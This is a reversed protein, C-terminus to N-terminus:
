IKAMTTTKQLPIVHIVTLPLWNWIVDHNSFLIENSNLYAMSGVSKAVKNWITYWNTKIKNVHLCMVRNNSQDCAHAYTNIHFELCFKNIIDKESIIYVSYVHLSFINRMCFYLDNEM